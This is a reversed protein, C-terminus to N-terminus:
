KKFKKIALYTLGALGLVFVFKHKTWAKYIISRRDKVDVKESAIADKEDMAIM